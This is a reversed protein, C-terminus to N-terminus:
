REIKYIIDASQTLGSETELRLRDNIQYTMVLKNAQEFLSVVYRVFLRETVQKGLWLESQEFGDEANITLEDLRFANAIKGTVGGEGDVNLGSMASIILYADGASAESLPKGTLLIAMADGENELPPDAYVQSTPRQLTGGIQLGIIDESTGRVLRQARIDLGPNDYPGQFVLQGRSITLEQGYARYKGEAVGVYGTTLLAREPTKIVQMRGSLRSTLGFGNLRVNDGLEASVNMFFRNQGNVRGNSRGAEEIFVDDSVQTASAPLTKIDIQAYPIRAEGTLRTEAANASLRISPSVRAKIQTQDVVQFNDGEMAANLQWQDSGFGQLQGSLQLSGGGSVFRSDLEMRGNGDSSLTVGVQELALGLHPIKAAGQSLVLKGDLRPQDLQGGINLDAVLQGSLDDAMPILAGLPTLDIFNADLTGSLAQSATNVGLQAQMEGYPPWRTELQSNLQNDRWEGELRSIQWPYIQVPDDAYQYHLEAERSVLSFSASPPAGSPQQFAFQGELYGRLSVDPKLLARLQRLPVSELKGQIALGQADWRGQTCLSPVSAEETSAEELAATEESAEEGNPKNEQGLRTTLCLNGFDLHAASASMPTASLLWWSPLEPLRLELETFQGQWEGRDYGSNLALSLRGLEQADLDARLKHGALEGEGELEFRKILTDALRLETLAMALNYHQREDPLLSLSLDELRLQQDWGLKRAKATLNLRPQDLNGSVQGSTSFAGTLRTDLQNLYPADLSWGLDLQRNDLRGKLQVRNAGLALFLGPSDIHEPAVDLDGQANLELGRLQGSADLENVKLSVKGEELSGSTKATLSLNGPWDQVFRAPDLAEAKLNLDWALSPAWALSGSVELKSASGAVSPERLASRLFEIALQELNGSAQAELVFAPWGPTEVQSDLRFQYADLWGSILLNGALSPVPADAPLWRAPLPQLPWDSDLRLEPSALAAVAEPPSSLNPLLQGRSEIQLPATLQHELTLTRIDGGLSGRGSFLLPEEAADESGLQYQWLLELSADYPYRLGIRGDAILTYDDAVLALDSLRFNFTGLSLSGSVSQFGTLVQPEGDATQQEIRLNRVQLQGLEVRVPLAFSPWPSAVPEATETSAPLVLLLNDAHLSQVSVASYMLALPQWRFSINEARYRQQLRGGEEVRFDVYALDLGEMLNGRIEGLELPLFRSAQQLFFRSGPETAVILSVTVLTGLMFLVLGLISWKILRLSRRWNM